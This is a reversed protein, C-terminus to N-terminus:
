KTISSMLTTLMKILSKKTEPKINKMNKIIDKIDNLTFNMDETTINGLIEILSEVSKEIECNELKSLETTTSIHVKKSVTSLKGKVLKTGFVKLANPYHESIGHKISECVYYNDNYLLSGVVSGTPIINIFKSKRSNYKESEFVSKLVGPGDFNYVKRIRKFINNKTELASVLGLNGGKSHGCIYIVKDKSTIVNNLYNLAYEQTNTMYKYSLRLNEYWGISSGDTGKYSIISTNKYSYKCSGFQLKENKLNIFNSINFSSYRKSNTLKELVEFSIVAMSSNTPTNKYKKAYSIFENFKLKKKFSPIPLYVLISFIINDLENIQVEEVLTDKYYEIYDFVTYM